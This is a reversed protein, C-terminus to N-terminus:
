SGVTATLAPPARFIYARRLAAIAAALAPSPLCRHTRWLFPNKFRRDRNARGACPLLRADAHRGEGAQTVRGTAAPVEGGSGGRCGGGGRRRGNSRRTSTATGRLPPPPPWAASLEGERSGEERWGRGTVGSGRGDPRRSLSVVRDGECPLVRRRCRRRGWAGSGDFEVWPRCGRRRRGSGAPGVGHGDEVAGAAAAAM